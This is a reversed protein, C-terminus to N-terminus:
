TPWAVEPSWFFAVGRADWGPGLTALRERYTEWSRGIPPSWAIEAAGALRPFVVHEVDAWTPTRETWMAAEVGLIAAEDIGDITTAPDWSYSQSVPVVGAWTAGVPSDAEYAMDLYIRDGPSMVLRHGAAVARRALEHDHERDATGWYQVVAGTPLETRAGEHWTMVRRGHGAVIAATSTVFRDFAAIDTGEAEDGGIHVYPGPFQSVVAAVVDAVFRATVDAGVDLTATSIGAHHYPAPALGDPALEPYAIIAATTHGPMDIEPVVTVFRDTAHTVIADLDDATYWGGPGGDVDSAGGVEVLRPWGPVDIRWGQDDTLHLHLVNLKLRAMEDVFRTVEGVTFFRRAVDLSVGRHSFRPADVIDVAPVSWPDTATTLLQQVTTLARFVGEPTAAVIRLGDDGASLRYAEPGGVITDDLGVVIDCREVGVDDVQVEIPWGTSALLWAVCRTAVAVLSPDPSSVVLRTAASLEFPGATRACVDVPLPVLPWTM